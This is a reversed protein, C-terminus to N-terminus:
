IAWTIVLAAESYYTMENVSHTGKPISGWSYCDEGVAAIFASSLGTPGRPGAPPSPLKNVMMDSVIDPSPYSTTPRDSSM